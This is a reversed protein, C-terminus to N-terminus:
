IKKIESIIANVIKFIDSVFNEVDCKSIDMKEANEHSRDSQHAIHNRRFYFTNLKRKLQDKTKDKSDRQYFASDAVSQLPVNLLNMTDKLADYSMLTDSSYKQTILIKFWEDDEPNDKICDLQSLTIPFKKYGESKEWDDNFMQYLGFRVIEHMFYDYASALLVIQTRWITKAAEIDGKEVLDDAIRYQDTVIQTNEDFHEKIGDLQYIIIEPIAKKKTEVERESLDTNIEM